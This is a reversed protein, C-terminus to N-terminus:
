TGGFRHNETLVYRGNRKKNHASSIVAWTLLVLTCCGFAPQIKQFVTNVKDLKSTIRDPFKRRFVSWISVFIHLLIILLILGIGSYILDGTIYSNFFESAERKDTEAALLLMSPNLTSQFKDWCFLDIITTTYAVVYFVRSDMTPNEQSFDDPILM